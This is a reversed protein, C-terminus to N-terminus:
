VSLANALVDPSYPRRQKCLGFGGTRAEFEGQIPNRLGLRADRLSVEL